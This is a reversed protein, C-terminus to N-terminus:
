SSVSNFEELNFIEDGGPSGGAQAGSFQGVNTSFVTPLNGGSLAFDPGTTLPGQASYGSYTGTNLWKHIATDSKYLASQQAATFAGPSYTVPASWASPASYAAPASAGGYIPPTSYAGQPATYMPPTNFANPGSFPPPGGFLGPAYAAAAASFARPGYHVSPGFYAAPTSSAGAFPANQAGPGHFGAPFTEQYFGNNLYGMTNVAPAQFNWPAAAGVASSVANGLVIAPQSVANEVVTDVIAGYGNAISEYPSSGDVLSGVGSDFSRSLASQGVVSNAAKKSVSKSGSTNKPQVKLKQGVFFFGHLVKVAKKVVEANSLQVFAFTHYKCNERSSAQQQITVERAQGLEKDKFLDKIDQVTVGDFLNGVFVSAIDVEYGQLDEKAMVENQSIVKRPATRNPLVKMVYDGGHMESAAVAGNSYKKFTIAFGHDLGFSAKQANTLPVKKTIEGYVKIVKKLGDDITAGLANRHKGFAYTLCPNSWEIRPPRGTLSKGSLTYSAEQAHRVSQFYTM